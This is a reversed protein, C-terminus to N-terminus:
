SYEQGQKPNKEMKEESSLLKNFGTLVADICM